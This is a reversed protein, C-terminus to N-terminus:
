PLNLLRKLEKELKPGRANTSIIMGKQDVLFMAPIARIGYVKGFDNQWYKGDYYQPWPMKHDVTFALVEDATKASKWPKAADPAKDFSIGVVDFGLAHYKEYNAVVNPIEAVCPGCWTAWFDVLVVKGRLQALDVARGDAATFKMELPAKIAAALGSKSEVLERVADSLSTRFAEWEQAAQPLGISEVVYFYNNALPGNAPAAPNRAILAMLQSRLQAVDVPQGKEAANSATELSDNFLMRERMTVSADPSSRLEALMNEANKNKPDLELSKAYNAMAQQGDGNKLQAEALSDYVNGSAPFLVTNWQLVALAEPLKGTQLYHYGLNNLQSEDPYLRIFGGTQWDAFRMTATTLGDRDIVERLADALAGDKVGVLELDFTLTSNAPIKGRAKAGYALEPPVVLTAKDGVHLLRVGEQWGKIVGPKGLTFAFPQKRDRSSDFVTGDPLKGTYHVLVVQGDTPSAGSGHETIVYRLGSATTTQAADPAPNQAAMPLAFLLFLLLRPNM